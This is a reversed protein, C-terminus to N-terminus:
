LVSTGALRHDQRLSNVERNATETASAKAQTGRVACYVALITFPSRRVGYGVRGAM